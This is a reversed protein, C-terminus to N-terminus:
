NTHFPEQALQLLVRPGDMGVMVQDSLLPDWVTTGSSFGFLKFGPCIDHVLDAAERFDHRSLYHSLILLDFGGEEAVRKLDSLSSVYVSLFCKELIWQRTELLMLNHGSCLVRYTSAMCDIEQDRFFELL